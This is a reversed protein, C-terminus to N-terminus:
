LVQRRRLRRGKGIAVAAASGLDHAAESLDRAPGDHEPISNKDPLAAHPPDSQTSCRRESRRPGQRSSMVGYGGRYASILLERYLPKLGACWLRFASALQRNEKCEATHRLGNDGIRQWRKMALLPYETAMFVRNGFRMRKVSAAGMGPRLSGPM